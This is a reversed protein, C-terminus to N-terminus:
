KMKLIFNYLLKIGEGTAGASYYKNENELFSVGAIDLHLWSTNKPIFNSLFAGAMIAGAKSNISLNKVDAINSKTMEVYEEWMPMEWVKEDTEESSQKLLDIYKNNNGMIITGKGGLMYLASGTLTAVDIILDPKFKESYALADAMILRGEADTNKIEVTKGSYSKFIDGPRISKSDVSNEVIPILGIFEGKVKNLALLKILGFVIASGTMDEKMDSFDNLKINLGGSDFMVGKGVFVVKKKAIGNKYKLILFRSEYESGKNVALILNM